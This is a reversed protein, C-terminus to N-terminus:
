HGLYFNKSGIFYYPLAERLECICLILGCKKLFFILCNHHQQHIDQTSITGNWQKLLIKMRLKKIENRVQANKLLKSPYRKWSMNILKILQSVECLKFKIKNKCCLALEISGYGFSNQFKTRHMLVWTLMKQVSKKM